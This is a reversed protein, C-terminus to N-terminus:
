SHIEPTKQALERGMNEKMWPSLTFYKSQSIAFGLSTKQFEQASRHKDYIQSLSVM